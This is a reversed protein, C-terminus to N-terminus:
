PGIRAADQGQLNSPAFRRAILCYVAHLLLHMVIEEIDDDDYGAWRLQRIHPDTLASPRALLGACFKMMETASADHSFGVQNAELEAGNLGLQRGRTFHLSLSFECGYNQAVVIAIRVKDHSSLNGCAIQGATTKARVVASSVDRFLSSLCADLTRHRKIASDIGTTTLLANIANPLHDDL